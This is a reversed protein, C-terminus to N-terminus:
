GLYEELKAALHLPLPDKLAGKYQHAAERYNNVLSIWHDAIDREQLHIPYLEIMDPAKFCYNPKDLKSHSKYSRIYEKDAPRPAVAYYVGNYKFLGSKSEYENNQKRPCIYGPVENNNRVRIIRLGSEKRTTDIGEDKSKFWITNITYPARKEAIALESDTLLKWINRTTGNSNVVVIHPEKSYNFLEFVKSKIDDLIRTRKFKKIGEETIVKQFELAAQWYLKTGVWLAPCEVYVKGDIQNITIAVMTKDLYGYITSKFNIVHIGTIPTNYDIAVNKKTGQYKEVYGLQRYLDYVAAKAKHELEDNIIPTIFQTLRGTIAFGARIAAKPDEAMEFVLEGDEDKYDLIVICATVKNKKDLSCAIEQIRNEHRIIYNAGELSRLISPTQRCTITINLEPSTLTEGEMGLTRALENKLVSIIAQTTENYQDYYIEINLEKSDIATAIAQRVLNPEKGIIDKKYKNPGHKTNEFEETEEAYGTILKKIENYIEYKDKMSLGTKVFSYDKGMSLTQNTYLNVRKKGEIYDIPKYLYEEASPLPLGIFHNSFVKESVPDWIAKKRSDLKKVFNNPRGISLPYLIKDGCKVYVTTNSKNLLKSPISKRTVWRTVKPEFLILPVRTHPTTQISAQLSISYYDKIKESKNKYCLAEPESLVKKNGAHLFSLEKNNIMVKNNIIKNLILNPLLDFIKKNEIYGHKDTLQLTQLQFEDIDQEKLSSEWEEFTEILDPSKLDYKVFSAWSKVVNFIIKKDLISTSIIWSNDTYNNYFDGVYLIDPTLARFLEEMQKTKLLRKNRTNDVFDGYFNIVWQEPMKLVYLSVDLNARVRFALPKITKFM